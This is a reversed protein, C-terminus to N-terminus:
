PVNDLKFDNGYNPYTKNIKLSPPLNMFNIFNLYEDKITLNNNLKKNLFQFDNFVITKTPVSNIQYNYLKIQNWFIDYYKPEDKCRSLADSLTNSHSSIWEVYVFIKYKILLHCLEYVFMMINFKSSWKNIISSVAVKNDVYLHVKKGTLKHKLRYLASLITHLEKQNIHFHKNTDDFKYISWYKGILWGGYNDSADTSGYINMSPNSLINAIPIEKVLDVYKFWFKLDRLIDIPLFFLDSPNYNDKRLNATIYKM